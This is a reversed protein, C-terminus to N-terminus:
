KGARRSLRGSAPTVSVKGDGPSPTVARVEWADWEGFAPTPRIKWRNGVTEPHMALDGPPTEFAQIGLGSEQGV